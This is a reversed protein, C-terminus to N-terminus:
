EVAMHRGAAGMLHVLGFTFDERVQGTHYKSLPVVENVIRPKHKGAGLVIRQRDRSGWKMMAVQAFSQDHLIIARMIWLLGQGFPKECDAVRQSEWYGAPITKRDGGGGRV